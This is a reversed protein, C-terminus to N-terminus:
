NTAASGDEAFGALYAIVNAIDEDKKLGAFTMRNGPLFGKPDALYAILNDKTWELGSEILVDSYKFGDVAAAPAGVIGNLPPGVCVRAKEGVQHCSSCKRFVKKGADADQASAQWTMITLAATIPIVLRYRM